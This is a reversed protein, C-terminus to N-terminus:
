LRYCLPILKVNKKDLIKISVPEFKKHTNANPILLYHTCWKAFQLPNYESFSSGLFLTATRFLSYTRLLEVAAIKPEFGASPM